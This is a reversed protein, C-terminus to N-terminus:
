SSISSPITLGEIQDLLALKEETCEEVAPEEQAERQTNGTDANIAAAQSKLRDPIGPFTATGLERAWDSSVQM